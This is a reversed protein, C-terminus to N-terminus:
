EPNNASLARRLLAMERWVEKRLAVAGPRKSMALGIRKAAEVAKSAM